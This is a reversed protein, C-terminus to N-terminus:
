SKDVPNHVPAVDGAKELAAIAAEIVKAKSSYRERLRAMREATAPDILINLRQWGGSLKAHQAATATEARLRRSHPTNANPM